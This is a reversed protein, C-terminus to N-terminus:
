GGDPAPLGCTSCGAARRCSGLASALNGSTTGPAAGAIEAACPENCGELSCGTRAACAALNRCALDGLCAAFLGRCGTCMCSACEPRHYTGDSALARLVDVCATHAADGTVCQGAQVPDPFGNGCPNPKYCNNWWVNNLLEPELLVRRTNPSGAVVDGSDPFTSPADCVVDDTRVFDHVGPDVNYRVWVPVPGRVAQWPTGSPPSQQIFSEALPGSAVAFATNAAM